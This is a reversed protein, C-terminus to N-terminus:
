TPRLLESGRTYRDVEEDRGIRHSAMFPPECLGATTWSRALGLSMCFWSLRRSCIIESLPLCGTSSRVEMNTVRQSSHKRLIRRQCWQDFTDVKAAMARTMTWIEAGYLYVPLVFM